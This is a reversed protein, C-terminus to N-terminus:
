RGGPGADKAGPIITYVTRNEPRLYERATRQILAPTVKEFQAELRNLEGPDNDFLAFSALLDLKGLGSFQEVIDYLSSRLKIKARALTAADVPQAQLAAVERDVVALLSDAPLGKDHFLSVIWLMPGEYNFQNGLGWNIGASVDSTYGKDQVLARYLRSDRGQALIQDILGFAYWEPSRRDPVHWALGLAPRNALSDVRSARKEKVQRPEALDPAAALQASPIAAFYREIWTRTQTNEFDGVVVLVANNPAYYRRSFAVADPLTAAELDKTDGYFNHANFWNENAAMPLDIWPFSGYPQNLVNVKVENEVVDRQNRLNSTDIALGRMRDAEAWLIAELTHSPMVEFYNTFDFRTSGNLVGGNSEILKIFELKGLNQSGQFMLHEFLHAFGTRDRPENRFGVHYYVGVGAVPATTDRSLVVRLGNKLTYYDYPVNLHQTRTGQAPLGVPRLSLGALLAVSAARRAVSM